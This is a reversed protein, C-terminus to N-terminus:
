KSKRRVRNRRTPGPPFQPMDKTMRAWNERSFEGETPLFLHASNSPIYPAPQGLGVPRSSGPKRRTVRPGGGQNVLPERQEGDFEDALQMDDPNDINEEDPEESILFEDLNRRNDPNEPELLGAADLQRFAIRALQDAERNGRCKLNRGTAHGKQWVFRLSFFHPLARLLKNSWERLHESDGLLHYMANDMARASPHSVCWRAIDISGQNDQIICLARHEPTKEKFQLVMRVLAEFEAAGINWCETGSMSSFNLASNARVWGGVSFLEESTSRKVCRGGGDVWALAHLIASGPPYGMYPIARDQAVRVGDVREGKQGDISEITKRLLFDTRIFNKKNDERIQILQDIHPNFETEARAHRFDRETQDTM